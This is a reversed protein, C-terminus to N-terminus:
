PRGDVLSRGNVSAPVAIEEDPSKKLPLDVQHPVAVQPQWANRQAKKSHNPNEPPRAVRPRM